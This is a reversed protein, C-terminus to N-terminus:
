EDKKPQIQQQQQAAAAAGLADAMRLYEKARKTLLERIMPDSDGAALLLLRRAREVYFSATVM